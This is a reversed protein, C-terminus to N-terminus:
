RAAQTEAAVVDAGGVPLDIVVRARGGNVNAIVITGQHEGVARKARTLGMGTGVTKTTYFPDFALELGEATFGPGNDTVTITVGGERERACIDVEAGPGAFEASNLLIEALARVMLDRDVRINMDPCDTKWRIGRGSVAPHDEIRHKADEIVVWLNVQAIQGVALASYDAVSRVMTELKLTEEAIAELPERTASDAKRLLLRTFGAISTVPNRIQHSVSRAFAILSEAREAALRHNQALIDKERQNLLTLETMDEILVVISTIKGAERLTSSIVSLYKRTGEPTTFPTVRETRPMEKQIAEIIVESFEDNAEDGLFLEGWTSAKFTDRACGLIDCAARNVEVIRGDPAIIILGVPLNALIAEVLKHM